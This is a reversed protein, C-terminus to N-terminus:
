RSVFNSVGSCWKWLSPDVPDSQTSHWMGCRVYMTTSSRWSWLKRMGRGSRDTFSPVGFAQLSQWASRETSHAASAARFHHPSWSGWQASVIWAARLQSTPAPSRSTRSAASVDTGAITRAVATESSGRSAPASADPAIWTASLSSSGSGRKAASASRLATSGIGRM